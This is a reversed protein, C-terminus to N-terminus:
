RQIDKIKEKEYIKLAVTRSTTRHMGLRVIAYAGQGIQKGLIYDSLSHKDSFVIKEQPVPEKKKTPPEKETTGGNGEKPSTAPNTGVFPKKKNSSGAM